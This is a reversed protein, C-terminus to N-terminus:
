RQIDGILLPITILLKTDGQSATFPNEMFEVAQLTDGTPLVRSGAFVIQIDSPLLQLPDRNPSAAIIKKWEDVYLEISGEYEYNGYQRYVPKYGWAYGNEKNQRAKYDIKTAGIVVNGFLVISLNGWSYAVGGILATTAM